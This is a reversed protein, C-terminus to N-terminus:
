TDIRFPGPAKNANNHPLGLYSPKALANPLDIPAPTTILLHGFSGLTPMGTM